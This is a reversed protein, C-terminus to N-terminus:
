PLLLCRFKELADQRSKEKRRSRTNLFSISGSILAHAYLNPWSGPITAKLSEPTQERMVVVVLHQLFAHLRILILKTKLYAGTEGM